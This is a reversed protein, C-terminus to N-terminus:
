LGYTVLTREVMARKTFLRRARDHARAALEARLAEDARLRRVAEAAEPPDRVLIGADDVVERIVPLDSAVVPRGAGMAELLSLPLGEFASFHVLIDTRAIAAAADPRPLWGSVAVGAGLLLDRDPGDGFWQFTTDRVDGLLAKMEVFLDPRRQYAARGVSAVLFPGDAEPDPSQPVEYDVGNQVVSVAHGNAFRAAMAGEARSVAITHARSALASEAVVTLRRLAPSHSGNLFAYGHPTYFRRWGPTPVLRGVLGAYTSHLHLVGGHFRSLERQLAIAARATGRVSGVLSRDGWDDVPVLRVRGDFWDAIDKPTEPRRGYIVVTPIGAAATENALASVVHLIGSALAEGVHIVAAGSEMTEEGEAAGTACKLGKAGPGSPTILAHAPIEITRQSGVTTWTPHAEDPQDGAAV